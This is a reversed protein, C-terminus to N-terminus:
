EDYVFEQLADGTLEVHGSDDVGVVHVGDHADALVDDEDVLSMFFPLANATLNHTGVVLAKGIENKGAVKQLIHALHDYLVAEM